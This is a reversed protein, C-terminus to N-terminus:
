KIEKLLEDLNDSASEINNIQDELEHTISDNEIIEDKLKQEDVLKENNHDTPNSGCGVILMLSGIILGFKMAIHKLEFFNLQMSLHKPIFKLISVGESELLKLLLGFCQFSICYLHFIIDFIPPTKDLRIFM